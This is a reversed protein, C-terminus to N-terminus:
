HTIMYDLTVNSEITIAANISKGGSLYVSVAFVVKDRGSFLSTVCVSVTCVHYTQHTFLRSQDSMAGRITENETYSIMKKLYSDTLLM